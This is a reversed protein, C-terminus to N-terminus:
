VGHQQEIAHMRRIEGLTSNEGVTPRQVGGVEDPEGIKRSRCYATLFSEEDRVRFDEGASEGAGGLCRAPQELRKAKAARWDEAPARASHLLQALNAGSSELQKAEGPIRSRIVDVM